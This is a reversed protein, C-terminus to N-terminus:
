QILEYYPLHQNNDHRMHVLCVVYVFSGMAGCSNIQANEWTLSLCSSVILKLESACTSCRLM